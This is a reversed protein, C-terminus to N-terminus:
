KGQKQRWKNTKFLIFNNYYGEYQVMIINHSSTNRSKKKKTLKRRKSMLVTIWVKNQGDKAQSIEEGGKYIM